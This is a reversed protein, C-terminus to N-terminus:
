QGCSEAWFDSHYYRWAILNRNRETNKNISQWFEPLSIDTIAISWFVWRTEPSGFPEQCITKAPEWTIAKISTVNQSFLPKELNQTKKINWLFLDPVSLHPKMISKLPLRASRLWKPHLYCTPLLILHLFPPQFTYTSFIFCVWFFHIFFFTCCIELWLLPVGGFCSLLIQWRRYNIMFFFFFFFARSFGFVATSEPRPQWCLSSISWNRTAPSQIENASWPANSPSQDM